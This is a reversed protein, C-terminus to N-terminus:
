IPVWLRRASDWRKWRRMSADWLNGSADFLVRCAAWHFVANRYEPKALFTSLPTATTVTIFTTDHKSHNLLVLTDKPSLTLDYITKPGVQTEVPRVNQHNDILKGIDNPLSYCDACYYRIEQGSGLTTQPWDGTPLQQISGHGSLVIHPRIQQDIQKAIATVSVPGTVEPRPPLPPPKTTAVSPKPAAKKLVPPAALTPLAKPTSPVLQVPTLLRRLEAEIQQDTWQLYRDRFTSINGLNAPNPGFTQTNVVLRVLTLARVATRHTRNGTRRSNISVAESIQRESYPTGSKLDNRVRQYMEQTIVQDTVKQHLYNDIERLRTSWNKM